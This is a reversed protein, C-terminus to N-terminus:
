RPENGQRRIREGQKKHGQKIGNFNIDVKEANAPYKYQGRKGKQEYRGANSHTFLIVTEYPKKNRDLLNKVRVTTRPIRRNKGRIVQVMAYSFDAVNSNLYFWYYNGTESVLNQLKSEVEDNIIKDSKKNRRLSKMYHPSFVIAADGQSKPHKTYATGSDSKDRIRPDEGYDGSPNLKLLEFWKRIGFDDGYRERFQEILEEDIGMTDKPPIEFKYKDRNKQKWEEVSVTRQSTQKTRFGAIKPKDGILEDRKNAMPIWSRSQEKSKMGGLIAYTGKDSYGAIGVVKGDVRRIVYKDLDYWVPLKRDIKDDPNDNNWAGEAEAKSHPGTVEDTM